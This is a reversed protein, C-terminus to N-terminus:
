LSQEKRQLKAKACQERVALRADTNNELFRQATISRLLELEEMRDPDVTKWQENYYKPVKRATGNIIIRDHAFVDTHGYKKLWTSGIGPRLSMRGFEPQVQYLEGTVPDCREYHNEAQPGTIKKTAYGAVYAASEPTVLGFDHRGKGWLREVTPSTWMPYDTKGPPCLVRDDPFYGFLLAHFHPRGKESGYEAGCFFRVKRRPPKPTGRKVRPNLHIRLKRMFDQFDPYHLDGRPPLHQEDYTLTLFSSLGVMQAEHLCRVTWDNVRQIRCGICQGCALTLERVLHKGREAFTLSGDDQQWATLPKYCAM